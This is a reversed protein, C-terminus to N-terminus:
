EPSNLRINEEFGSPDGLKAKQLNDDFYKRTVDDCKEPSMYLMNKAKELEKLAKDAREPTISYNELWEKQWAYEWLLSARTIGYGIQFEDATEGVLETPLSFDEPWELEKITKLYEKEIEVFSTTGTNTQLQEDSCGPLLVFMTLISLISIAKKFYKCM